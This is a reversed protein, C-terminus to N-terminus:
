SSRRSGIESPFSTGGRDGRGTPQLQAHKSVEQFSVMVTHDSTGFRRIAPQASEQITRAPRYPDFSGAEEVIEFTEEIESLSLFRTAGGDTMIAGRDHEGDNDSQFHRPEIM